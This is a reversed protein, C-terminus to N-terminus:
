GAPAPCPLSQREWPTGMSPGGASPQAWRLANQGLVREHHEKPVARELGYTYLSGTSLAIVVGGTAFALIM